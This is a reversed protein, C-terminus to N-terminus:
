DEFEQSILIKVLWGLGADVPQTECTSNTPLLWRFCNVARLAGLFEPQLQADLNDCFFISEQDQLVNQRVFSAFVEKTWRVMFLRDAWPKQQFMVHVRTDWAAQEVMSNKKGLGRFIITPKPQSGEPRFCLQLTCFRKSMGEEMQRIWVRDTGVQEYTENQECVFPLPLQDGNFRSYPSISGWKADRKTRLSLFLRLKVHFEKIFPLREFVSVKKPIQRKELPLTLDRWSCRFSTMPHLSNPRLLHQIKNTWNKWM